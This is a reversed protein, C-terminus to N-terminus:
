WPFLTGLPCLVCNGHFCRIWPVCYVNWPFLTDLPCLIREMSVTYGLSVICVAVMSVAYGLSMICNGHFCCIRPVRYTVTEMSVASGLSLALGHKM